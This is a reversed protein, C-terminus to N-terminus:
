EGVLGVVVWEGVLGRWVWGSVLWGVGEVCVEEAISFSAGGGGRLQSPGGAGEGEGTM